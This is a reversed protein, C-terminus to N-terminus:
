NMALEEDGVKHHENVVMEVNHRYEVRQAHDKLHDSAQGCTHDSAQGRSHDSAQGRREIVEKTARLWDRRLAIAVRICRM